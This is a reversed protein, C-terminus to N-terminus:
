RAARKRRALKPDAELPRYIEVRDGDRLIRDRSQVKGWIGVPADDAVDWGCARIAEELRAGAPLDLLQEDHRDPWARLVTIKM